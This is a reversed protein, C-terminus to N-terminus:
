MISVSFLIPDMCKAFHAPIPFGVVNVSSAGSCAKLFKHSNRTQKHAILVDHPWCRRFIHFFPFAVVFEILVCERERFDENAIM